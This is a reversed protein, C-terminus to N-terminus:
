CVKFVYNSFSFISDVIMERNEVINELGYFVIAVMETLNFNDVFAKLKSWDLIKIYLYASRLHEGDVTIRESRVHQPVDRPNPGMVDRIRAMRRRRWGNMVHNREELMEM